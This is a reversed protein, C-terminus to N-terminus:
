NEHELLLDMLETTNVLHNRIKSLLEKRHSKTTIAKRLTVYNKQGNETVSFFSRKISPKTKIIVVEAVGAIINRAQQIRWQKAAKTNDWEFYEHLVSNKKSAEKVVITPTLKGGNNSTLVDLTEGIAQIDDNKILTGNCEYKKQTKVM